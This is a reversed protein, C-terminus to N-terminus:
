PADYYMMNNREVVQKNAAKKKRPTVPGFESSSYMSTNIGTLGTLRKRTQRRM